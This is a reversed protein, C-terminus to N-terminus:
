IIRMCKLYTPYDIYQKEKLKASFNLRKKEIAPLATFIFADSGAGSGYSAFLIKEGPKVYELTAVLGMLASATYSNGLESVILSKQIQESSFGLQSAIQVPFKGNPMHFVAYTFDEPRHQSKSLLAKVSGAIHRFYSPKGTFRGGHSPYKIGERRWFDPTDSSYSEWADVSLIPNKEGVIISVSGSAATYELADHPKGTAKDSAVVLASKIQKSEVLALASILAGTAAKCAFQTDYALYNNGIGLLEGLITSSPNVAYVPSETGFFLANIPQTHGKLAVSSSEYAMTLSDEAATAVAKEVVGLGKEIEEANKGWVKTIDKIRIRYQPIYFGYSTIGTKM